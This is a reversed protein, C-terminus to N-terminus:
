LLAILPPSFFTQAFDNTKQKIQVNKHLRSILFIPESSWSLFRFFYKSYNFLVNVFLKSDYKKKRKYTRLFVRLYFFFSLFCFFFFLWCSLHLEKTRIFFFIDLENRLILSYTEQFLNNRRHSTGLWLWLFYSGTCCLLVFNNQIVTHTRCAVWFNSSNLWSAFFLVFM